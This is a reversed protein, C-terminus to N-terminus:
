PAEEFTLDFRYWAGFHYLPDNTTADIFLTHPGPQLTVQQPPAPNSV